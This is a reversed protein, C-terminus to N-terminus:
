VSFFSCFLKSITIPIDINKENKILTKTNAFTCRKRCMCLYIKVKRPTANPSHIYLIHQAILRYPIILYGINTIPM